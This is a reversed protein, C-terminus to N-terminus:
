PGFESNNTFTIPSGFINCTVNASVDSYFTIGIGTANISHPQMWRIDDINVFPIVGGTLITVRTTSYPLMSASSLMEADIYWSSLSYWDTDFSSFWYKGVALDIWSIIGNEDTVWANVQENSVINSIGSLNSVVTNGNRSNYLTTTGNVLLGNYYYPIELTIINPHVYEYSIIIGNNDTFVEYDGDFLVASLNSAPVNTNKGVFLKIGASLAPSDSGYGNFIYEHPTITITPLVQIGSLYPVQYPIYNFYESSGSTYPNFTNIRVNETLKGYGGPNEIIVDVNGIKNASPMIFTTFDEGNSHWESSLLKVAFFPPYDASLKPYELFPNQDSSIDFLPAGSLYVNKIQNFGSGFCNFQQFIGINASYPQIIKPRPPAGEYTFPEVRDLLYERPIPDNIALNGPSNILAANFTFINECEVTNQFLWGKFTFTLDAVVRAVQAANTDMPYQINVNGSWFVSSRIEHDPRNPTRWSVVFYPNVYPLLHSLIQDMDQQYRTMISVNYTIDIPQPGKENISATSNAPTHFSGVLKNFVRSEDRTIGGIHVSIVPLQINQDKDLLDNLVRQKPAYVVRTKIRDRTEKHVNFRKVVIDSFCNLLMTTMTQIEFDYTYRNM